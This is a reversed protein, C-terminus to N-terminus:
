KLCSINLRQAHVIKERFGDGPYLSPIDAKSQPAEVWQRLERLGIQRQTNKIESHRFSFSFLMSITLMLIFCISAIRPMKGQKFHRILLAGMAPILPLVAETHRWDMIGCRSWAIATSFLVGWLIITLEAGNTQLLLFKKRWILILSFIGPIVLLLTITGIITVPTEPTFLGFSKIINVVTYFLFDPIAPHSFKAPDYSIFFVGAATGAAIVVAATQMILTKKKQTDNTNVTSVIQRIGWCGLIEVALLPSMSFTSAALCVTFIAANGWSNKCCFGFYVALMGFLLMFHFSSQGTWLLNTQAADSFFPLFFLIFGPYRKIEQRFILMVVGAFALYVPYNALVLHRFNLSDFLYSLHLMLRTFVIRHQVHVAFINKWSLPEVAALYDWDDEIPVDIALQFVKFMNWMAAMAVITIAAIRIRGATFFKNIPMQFMNSKLDKQLFCCFVLASIEAAM